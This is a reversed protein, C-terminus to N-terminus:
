DRDGRGTEHGGRFYVYQGDIIKVNYVVSGSAGGLRVVIEGDESEFAFMEPQKGSEEVTMLLETEGEENEYEFTTRSIRRGNEIVTYCYEIESEGRESEVSQEVLIYSNEGTYVRMEYENESEGDESESQHTGRLPYEEGGLVMVGELMYTIESEGDDYEAHEDTRDYYITGSDHQEGLFDTYTVRMVYGYQAYREDTNQGGTVSFNEGSILSEVLEMYGNITAITQEDDIRSGAYDDNNGRATKAASRVTSSPMYAINAAAGEAGTIFMGATAASFGYVEEASSLEGFIGDDPGPGPVDPGPTTASRMLPIFACVIIAAALVCACITIPLKRAALKARIGGLEVEKTNESEIGLRYKIDDKIREDPLVQKAGDKLQKKINM